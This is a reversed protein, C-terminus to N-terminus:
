QQFVMCATQTHVGNQEGVFVLGLKTLKFRSANRGCFKLFNIEMNQIKLRRM